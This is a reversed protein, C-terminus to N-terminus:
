MCSVYPRSCVVSKGHHDNLHSSNQVFPVSHSLSYPFPHPSLKEFLDPLFSSSLLPQLFFTILMPPSRAAAPSSKPLAPFFPSFIKKLQFISAQLFLPSFDLQRNKPSARLHHYEGRWSQRGFGPESIFFFITQVREFCWHLYRRLLTFIDFSGLGSHSAATLLLTPPHVEFTPEVLWLKFM